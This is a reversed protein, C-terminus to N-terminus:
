SLFHLWLDCIQRLKVCCALATLGKTMFEKNNATQMFNTLMNAKMKCKINTLNLGGDIAKRYLVEIQPKEFSDQYLWSKTLSDM